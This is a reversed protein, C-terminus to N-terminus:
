RKSSNRDWSASTSNKWISCQRARQGMAKGKEQSLLLFQDLLSTIGDLDDNAIVGAGTEQVERWINVKNTTLVPKNYAMAEAIVMGLNEQHSPLIFAEAARFAAWDALTTAFPCRPWL